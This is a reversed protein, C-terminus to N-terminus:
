QPGGRAPDRWQVGTVALGARVAAAGVEDVLTALSDAAPQDEANIHFEWPGDLDHRYLVIQARGGPVERTGTGLVDDYADGLRGEPKLDLLERLRDLRDRDIEGALKVTVAWSFM